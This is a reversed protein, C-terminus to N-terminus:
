FSARTPGDPYAGPYRHRALVPRVSFFCFLDDMTTPFTTNLNHTSSRIYFPDRYLEPHRVPHYRDGNTGGCGGTQRKYQSVQNRHRPPNSPGSLFCSLAFTTGSQDSSVRSSTGPYPRVHRVPSISFRNGVSARGRPPPPQFRELRKRRGGGPARFTGAAPTM